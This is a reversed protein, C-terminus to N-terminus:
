KEIGMTYLRYKCGHDDKENGFLKLTIQDMTIYLNYSICLSNNAALAEYTMAQKVTENKLRELENDSYRVKGLHAGLRINIPSALPNRLRNYFFLEHLIDMGAFIAM